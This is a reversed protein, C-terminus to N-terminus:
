WVTGWAWCYFNSLTHLNDELDATAQLCAPCWEQQPIHCNFKYWKPKGRKGERSGQLLKIPKVVGIKEGMRSPVPTLSFRPPHKTTPQPGCVVPTWWSCCPSCLGEPFPALTQHNSLASSLAITFTVYSGSDM